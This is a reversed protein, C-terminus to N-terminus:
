ASLRFNFIHADHKPTQCRFDICLRLGSDKKQSFLVPAGHPSLSPRIFGTPVNEDIFDQLAKQEEQSLSYIRSLPLEAGEELDIKLDYPRHEALTNAKTKSFVNAFDHYELPIGNMENPAVSIPTIKDSFIRLQFTESDDLKCIRAFAATNVLAIYPAKLKPPTLPEV